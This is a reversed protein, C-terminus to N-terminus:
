EDESLEITFTILDVNIPVSSLNVTFGILKGVQMNNIILLPNYNSYDSESDIDDVYSYAVNAEINDFSVDYEEIDTKISVYQYKNSVFVFRYKVSLSRNLTITSNENILIEECPCLYDNLATSYYNNSHVHSGEIEFRIASPCYLISWNTYTSWSTRATTGLGTHVYVYEDDYGYAISSHEAGNAIVPIGQDITDMILNKPTNTISDLANGECCYEDYQINRDNLYSKIMKWQSKAHMGENPNEFPMAYEVMLDHFQNNVSSNIASSGDLGYGPSQTFTACYNKNQSITLDYQEDIINDNYFTDFYGLLMTASVVSCTGNYNRPHYHGLNEFYYANPILKTNEKYSTGNDGDFVNSGNSLNLIENDLKSFNIKKGNVANIFNDDFYGFTFETNTPNYIKFYDDYFFYPNDIYLGCEFVDNSEQDYIAWYNNDKIIIYQNSCDLSYVYEFSTLTEDFYINNESCVSLIEERSFDYNYVKQIGTQEILALMALTLQGIM